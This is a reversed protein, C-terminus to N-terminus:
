RTVQLRAHGFLMRPLILDFTMALITLFAMTGSVVINQPLAAMRAQHAAGSTLSEIADAM